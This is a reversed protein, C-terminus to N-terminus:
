KQPQLQQILEHLSFSLSSYTIKGVRVELLERFPLRAPKGTPNFSGAPGLDFVGLHTGTGILDVECITDGHQEVRVIGLRADPFAKVWMEAFRVYGQPGLEKQSSGHYEIVADDAFMDAADEFRRENFCAYYERIFEHGRM